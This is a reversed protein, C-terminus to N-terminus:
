FAPIVEGAFRELVAHNRGTHVALLVGDVAGTDAIAELQDRCDAPTGAVAFRDALYGRLGLDDVLRRNADRDPRGHVTSDYGEVLRRLDDALEPPVAKGEFTFQLAHHASAALSHTMEALARERDDRVNADVYVYREVTGPDRGAARAGADIRETAAEVVAPTKGLGVVVRDAVQGALELTKPGEAAM